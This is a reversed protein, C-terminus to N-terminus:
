MFIFAYMLISHPRPTPSVKGWPLNDGGGWQSQEYPRSLLFQKWCVRSPCESVEFLHGPEEWDRQDNCLFSLMCLPQLPPSQGRGGLQSHEYSCSLKWCGRSPCESVEFSWARRMGKSWWMFIFTHVITSPPPTPSVKGRPLTYGEVVPLNQRNMPILYSFNNKTDEPLANLFKLHGPKEWDM